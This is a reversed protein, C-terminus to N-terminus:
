VERVRCVFHVATNVQKGTARTQKMARDVVDDKATDEDVGWLIYDIYCNDEDYVSCAYGGEVEVPKPAKKAAEYATIKAIIEEPTFKEFVVEVDRWGDFVEGLIHRNAKGFWRLAETASTKDADKQFDHLNNDWVKFGPEPEILDSFETIEWTRRMGATVTMDNWITFYEKDCSLIHKFHAEDKLSIRTAWVYGLGDLHELLARADEEKPCHIVMGPKIEKFKM